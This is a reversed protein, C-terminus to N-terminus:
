ELSFKRKFERVSQDISPHEWLIWRSLAGATMPDKWDERARHRTLYNERRLPNKHQTYDEYGKAGFPIRRSTDEGEFVGIWKHKGDDARELHFKM